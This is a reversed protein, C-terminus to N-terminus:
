VFHNSVSQLLLLLLLFPVNEYRQRQWKMCLAERNRTCFTTTKYPNDTLIFGPLIAVPSYCTVYSGISQTLWCKGEKISLNMDFFQLARHFLCQRCKSVNITVVLLLNEERLEFQNASAVSCRGM